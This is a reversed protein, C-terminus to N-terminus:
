GGAVEDHKTQDDTRERQAAPSELSHPQEKRAAKRGERHGVAEKEELDRVPRIADARDDVGAPEQGHYEDREGRPGRDALRPGHPASATEERARPEETQDTERDQDPIMEVPHIRERERKGGADHERHNETHRDDKGFVEAAGSVFRLLESEM